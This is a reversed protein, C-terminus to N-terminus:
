FNLARFFNVQYAPPIMTIKTTNELYRQTLSGRPSFYGSLRSFDTTTALM